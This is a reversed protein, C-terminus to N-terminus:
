FVDLNLESEEDDVANMRILRKPTGKHRKSVRPKETRNPTKQVDDFM